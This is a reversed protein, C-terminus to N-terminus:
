FQFQSFRSEFIHWCVYLCKEGFCQRIVYMSSIYEVNASLALQIIAISIFVYLDSFYAGVERRNEKGVDQFPQETALFPHEPDRDLCHIQTNLIHIVAQRNELYTTLSNLNRSRVQVIKTELCVSKCYWKGYLLFLLIYQCNM